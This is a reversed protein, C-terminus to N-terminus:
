YILSRILGNTRIIIKKKQPVTYIYYVINLFLYLWMPLPGWTLYHSTTYDGLQSKEPNEEATNKTDTNTKIPHNNSSMASRGKLM